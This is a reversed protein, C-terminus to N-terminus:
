LNCLMLVIVAGSDCEVVIPLAYPHWCVCCLVVCDNCCVDIVARYFPGDGFLCLM